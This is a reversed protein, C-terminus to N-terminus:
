RDFYSEIIGGINKVDDINLNGWIQKWEGSDKRLETIEKEGMQCKYFEVGDTTEATNVLIYRSSGNIVVEITFNIDGSEM